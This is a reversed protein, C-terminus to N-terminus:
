KFWICRCPKEPCALNSYVGCKNLRASRNYGVILREFRKCETCKRTPLSMFWKHFAKRETRRNVFMKLQERHNRMEDLLAENEVIEAPGSLSLEDDEIHLDLQLDRIRNILTRM